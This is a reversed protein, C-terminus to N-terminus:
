KPTALAADVRPLPAGKSGSGGRTQEGGCEIRVLTAGKTSLPVAWAGAKWQAGGNTVQAWTVGRARGGPLATEVLVESFTGAQEAAAAVALTVVYPAETHVLVTANHLKGTRLRVDLGLAGVYLRQRFSDRPVVAVHMPAVGSAAASSKPRLQLHARPRLSTAGNRSSQLEIADCLYCLVGLEADRVLYAGTGMAHGFFALGYDGSRPDHESVFPYTHFGMSPAGTHDINPMVSAVGGLGVHLLYVDDPRRRYEELLPISNLGARYHGGEREWGGTVMWKANNSFDGWGAASGHLAWYPLSPTYALIADNVRSVLSQNTGWWGSSSVDFHAGWVGVEEQGTTDWNFESGFPADENLWGKSDGGVGAVTRNYMMGRILEAWPGWAEVELAVLVERFVTGDMLGVSPVCTCRREANGQACCGLAYITLCARELYWEWSHRTAIGDFFRAARYLGWFAAVQHPFNYQRYVNIWDAGSTATRENFACWSPGMTCKDTETYYSAPLGSHNYYYLTMLIRDKRQTDNGMDQLSFLPAMAPPMSKVGDLTLNVYEDLREVELPTPSLAVKTALGLTAGGGADDSLGVVFPRGDQLVHVGDERDWPMVSASRGFPDPFDAPLWGVNASFEGFSAVLSDLPPLVYYQVSSWTGDSFTANITARGRALGRVALRIPSSPDADDSLSPKTVRLVTADDVSAGRLKVGVPPWVFLAASEMDTPLVYGPVGKLVPEGADRLAADRARPGERVLTFRLAYERAKGAGLTAATPANLLRPNPRYFTENGHWCPWPSKPSPWAAKHNADDPMALFPTQRNEAWESAWAATHATWEYTGWAVAATDELVPRYAELPTPAHRADLPSVVLSASGDARTWTVSGREGGAHADAFSLSAAVHTLNLGGWTADPVLSFGLGGVRLAQTGNNELRWRVVLGGRGDVAREYSRVVRLGLPWRTDIQRNPLATVARTIDSCDLLAEPAVAPCAAPAVDVEDGSWASSYTAWQSANTESAPQVRITLDGVHHAGPQDRHRKPPWFNWLPPVFSFNRGWRADGEIRLEQVTRSGRRLGLILGDVDFTVVPKPPPPPAPEAPPVAAAFCASENVDAWTAGDENLLAHAAAGPDGGAAGPTARWAGVFAGVRDHSTIGAGGLGYAEALVACAGQAPVADRALADALVVQKGAACNLVNESDGALAGRGGNFNEFSVFDVAGVHDCAWSGPLFTATLPHGRAGPNTRNAETLAFRMFALSENSQINPRNLADIAVVAEQDKVAAVIDAVYMALEPWASQNAIAAAGPNPVWPASRYAGSAVWEPTPDGGGQADFLVLVLSLNAGRAAGCLATVNAAFADPDVRWALWHLAVRAANLGAGRLSAFDAAVAEADFADLWAAVANPAAGPM